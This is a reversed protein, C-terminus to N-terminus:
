GFCEDLYPVIDGSEYLWKVSDGDEIRLCPVMVRGGQKVLEERYQPNKIDRIEITVNLRHIARRTIVCFPCAYLQYLALGKAKAQAQAQDAESRKVPRPNTLWSIFVIIMGLGNRLAKVIM